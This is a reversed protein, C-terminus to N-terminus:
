SAHTKLDENRIKYSHHQLSTVLKAMFLCSVSGHNYQACYSGQTKTKRKIFLALALAFPTATDLAHKFAESQKLKANTM